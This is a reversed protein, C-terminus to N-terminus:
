PNAQGLIARTEGPSIEVGLFLKFFRTTEGELNDSYLEPYLKWALWRLGIARMFSPPYNLWNFPTKPVSYVRHNRVAKLMGYKPDVYVKSLFLDEQTIIVDPNYLLLQEMDIREPPSGSTQRCHHANHGGALEIAEDLFPMHDCDNKLGDPGIAYYVSLKRSEPIRSSFQKMEVITQEIYVSLRHAREKRDLLDGLFKLAPPYDDLRFLRVAAVPIHLSELKDSMQPLAALSQDWVLAVDPKALALNELNPTRQGFWGGVVPLDRYPRSIYRKSDESLPGTWGILLSPDIAYVLYTVPPYASWVRGIHGVTVTRGAMDAIERAHAQDAGRGTTALLCVALAALLPRGRCV